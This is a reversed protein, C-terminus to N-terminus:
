TSIAVFTERSLREPLANSSFFRLELSTRDHRMPPTVYTRHLLDGAFVLADGPNMAPRLFRQASFRARVGLDHLDEPRLLETLHETVLELGPAHVGCAQLPMWCTVLSILADEPFARGLHALFDFGLAADQHWQHAAHNPPYSSPAYQRRIWSQSTCVSVSGGLKQHISEGAPGGLVDRCLQLHEDHALVAGLTLSSATPVFRQGAALAVETMGIDGTRRAEALPLYAADIRSALADAHWASSTVPHIAILDHSPCRSSM